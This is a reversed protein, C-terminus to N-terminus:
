TTATTRCRFVAASLGSIKGIWHALAITVHGGDGARDLRAITWAGWPMQVFYFAGM